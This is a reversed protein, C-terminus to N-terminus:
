ENVDAKKLAKALDFAAPCALDGLAIKPPRELVVREIEAGLTERAATRLAQTIATRIPELM